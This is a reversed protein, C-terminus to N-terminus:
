RIKAKCGQMLHRRARDEWDALDKDYQDEVWLPITASKPLMERWPQDANNRAVHQAFLGSSEWQEGCMSREVAANSRDQAHLKRSRVCLDLGQSLLTACEDCM